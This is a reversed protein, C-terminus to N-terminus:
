GQPQQPLLALGIANLQESAVSRWFDRDHCGKAYKVTGPPLQEELSRLTGEYPDADGCDIRVALGNLKDVRPRLDGYAKFDENSDFSTPKEDQADDFSHWLTPSTAMVIAFREPAETAALLAGLGGMSTGMIAIKDLVLLNYQRLIVPLDELVMGLPNDGSARPHWYGEPGGDVTVLVFPPLQAQTLGSLLRPLGLNEAEKEDGGEGHLYLCVPVRVGAARAAEPPYHIQYRVTKKRHSSYFSSRLTKGPEAEPAPTADIDCRGLVTDVVSRGPVLRADALLAWLGLGGAAGLTASGM